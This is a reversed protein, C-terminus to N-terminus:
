AGLFMLYGARGGFFFSYTDGIISKLRFFRTTIRDVYFIPTPFDHWKVTVFDTIDVKLVVLHWSETSGLDYKLLFM